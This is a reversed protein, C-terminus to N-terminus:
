RVHQAIFAAIAGCVEAERSTFFFHGGDFTRVTVGGTTLAGWGALDEAKVSPDTEGGLALIPCSVRSLGGWRYSEALRFDARILPLLFQRMEPNDLIESPTGGMDRLLAIFEDDPLMSFTRVDDDPLHLAGRGSVILCSPPRWGRRELRYSVEFAFAAGLSHGFLAYPRGTLPQLGSCIREVTMAFDVLPRRGRLAERGPLLVTGVQVSPGLLRPWNRFVAAGGGAHPICFLRCGGAEAPALSVLSKRM